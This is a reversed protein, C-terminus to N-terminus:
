ILSKQFKMIDGPKLQGLKGLDTKTICDIMAYECTLNASSIYIM